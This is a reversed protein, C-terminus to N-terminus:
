PKWHMALSDVVLKEAQARSLIIAGSSHLKDIAFLQAQLLTLTMTSPPTPGPAPPTPPPAPIPVHGGLADFDSIIQAWAIGNGAKAQGRLIQDPTLVTNASGYNAPVCYMAMAAWTIIGLMGWTSIIAGQANYGVVTFAHGNKTNPPGAVDWVFGPGSPFPSIWKDPLCACLLVNEFCYSATMLSLKSAANVTLSGLLKTGNGFGHTTYFNIATDEDSGQDTSPDGPVYGGIATYEKVIQDDSPLYISGANGTEVGEMHNAGSIVCCGLADNKFMRSLSAMAKPSYDVTAPPVDLVSSRVFRDMSFRPTHARPINRGLAVEHGHFPSHIRRVM